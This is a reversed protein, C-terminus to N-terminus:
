QEADNLALQHLYLAVKAVKQMARVSLTAGTIGDIRRDLDSTQSPADTLRAGIFQRRYAPQQIEGGRSERYALVDVLQLQQQDVVLGFSIPREKGVEDLLWATREGLKWYRLRLQAISYDFRRTLEERKDSSLWLVSVPPVSEGFAESLFQERAEQGAMVASSLLCLLLWWRKSLGAWVSTLVTMAMTMKYM